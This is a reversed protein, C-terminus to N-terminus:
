GVYGGLFDYNQNLWESGESFLDTYEVCSV